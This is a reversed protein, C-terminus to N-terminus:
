RVSAEANVDGGNTKQKAWRLAASLFDNFAFGMLASLVPHTDVLFGSFAGLVIGKLIGLHLRLGTKSPLTVNDRFVFYCFGGVAGSVVCHWDFSWHILQILTDV